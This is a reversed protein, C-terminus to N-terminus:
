SGFTDLALVHNANESTVVFFAQSLLMIATYSARRWTNTAVASTHCEDLYAFTNGSQWPFNEAVIKMSGTANNTFIVQFLM